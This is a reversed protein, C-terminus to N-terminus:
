NGAFIAALGQDESLEIVQKASNVSGAEAFKGGMQGTGKNGGETGLDVKQKAYVRLLEALEVKKQPDKETVYGLTLNVLPLTNGVCYGYNADAGKTLLYDLEDPLLRDPLTASNRANSTGKESTAANPDAGANVLAKITEIRDPTKESKDILWQLPTCSIEFPESGFDEDENEPLTMRYGRGKLTLKALNPNKELMALVTETDAEGCAEFFKREEENTLTEPTPEIPQEEASKASDASSSGDSEKAVAPEPQRIAQLLEATQEENLKAKDVFATGGDHQIFFSRPYEKKLAVNEYTVEGVTLTPMAQTTAAAVLLLPLFTTKHM